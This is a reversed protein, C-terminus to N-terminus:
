QIFATEEHSSSPAPKTFSPMASICDTEVGLNYDTGIPLKFFGYEGWYTGWSNRGVWYEEGDDTTGWGIISIEHNLAPWMIYEKYIGGKYDNEFKDTAQIGCGIPGNKYLEAKMHTINFGMIDTYSEAYYKKHDVAWCKDMGTEGVPPPPWTCDRCIDIPACVHDLDAAVYQECSSDPIGTSYAYEFVDMPDGGECDGGAKCNIMVQSDLAIPTMAKDGLLINFRDALASTTGQAWCSGCYKPIHQNKTWSLFNTGNVNRWDWNAPLSEVDLGELANETSLPISREVGKNKKLCGKSEAGLFTTSYDGNTVNNRPDNKEEDTTIHTTKNTWTDVPTAWTCDTEIALNNKGRVLKMFGQLGWHTGWSNRILWYPTGAEEGYGVVSIEHEINVDGTTDEFVGSTYNEMAETVAVGCAIPGRQYIEQMMAQEGAFHAFEDVSYVLYEDPVFCPEKPNCNKCKTISSCEIGNDLGRAQYISCTEDTVNNNHMWNYANM